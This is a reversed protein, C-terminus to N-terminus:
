APQEGFLFWSRFALQHCAAGYARYIWRAPRTWGAHMLVPALFPLGVYLALFVNFVLLYHRAFWLGIRNGRTFRNKHRIRADRASEEARAIHALRDQAAALTIQLRARDFPANLTYPGIQVVPADGAGPEADVRELTHPYQEQLEQLWAEIEPCQPCDESAYLRVVTM